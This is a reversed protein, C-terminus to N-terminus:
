NENENSDSPNTHSDTSNNNDPQPNIEKSSVSDSTMTNVYNGTSVDTVTDSDDNDEAIGKEKDYENEVKALTDVADTYLQRMNADREVPTYKAYECEDILNIIPMFTAEKVGHKKFEQGVNSRNLESTPMKLKDGLYGWLAALMEDYFQEEQHNRICQYAKSLRKLAMKNAKKSRLLTLDEHEKLYKRYRSFAFVFILVPIGYWLWYLWSDVYPTDPKLTLNDVPLLNPDFSLAKQSKSSSEGMAVKINFPQSSLTKYQGDSPDFYSLEIPPIKFDGTERPLISYEFKSTGNVNSIGVTADVTNQPAFLELSAPMLSNIDPMNLYKINGTGSITFVLQGPTNTTLNTTPMSAQLRFQGVGGFFNAPVPTPLPKVNIEVDNPTVNLQVNYKDVMGGWLPDHYYKKADTNVTYTNGLIKLRGSKQPFIIYRAIIGSVYQKGNVIERTLKIPQNDTYEEIVFGEFKPSAAAGMFKIYDYSSYLRVVYEIAEQEYVTTKNVQARLFMEENGKGVFIPGSKPNYTSPDFSGTNNQTSPANSQTNPDFGGGGQGPPVVQYSISNSSVGGVSVPGFKYSGPTEAKFTLILKTSSMSQSSGNINSTSYSQIVQDSPYVKKVGQPMSPIDMKGGPCNIAEIIINFTRGVEVKGNPANSTIKVSGGFIDLPIFLLLLLLLRIHIPLINRM